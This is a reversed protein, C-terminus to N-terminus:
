EWLQPFETVRQGEFVLGHKRLYTYTQDPTSHRCHRQVLMIDKTAKYLVIAGTPKWSYVDYDHGFLDLNEMIKRHRKYIYNEGIHVPGPHGAITFVYDTPPYDRLRHQKILQELGAPIDVFGTKRNKATGSTIRVQDTLIDGVKMFRLEEGPRVFLFYIFACFLWLQEDGTALIATRIDKAQQANFPRHDESADVRVNKIVACPSKTLIERNVYFTFFSKFFGLMNNRFRGGVATTDFFEFMMTVSVDKLIVETLNKAKFFARIHRFYHENLGETNDKLEVAKTVKYYTVAEDFTFAKTVISAPEPEPEPVPEPLQEDIHWGDKLKQNIEKILQVADKRKEEVTNGRLSIRKRISKKKQADWIYCIVYPEITSDVLRAPTYPFEKKTGPKM